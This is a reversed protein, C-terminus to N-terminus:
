HIFLVPRLGLSEREAEAAESADCVSVFLSLKHLHLLFCETPHPLRIPCMSVCNPFGSKDRVM